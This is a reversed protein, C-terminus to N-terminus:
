TFEAEFLKYIKSYALGFAEGHVDDEEELMTDIHALEHLLCNVSEKDNLNNNIRIYYKENRYCCDGELKSDIKCRKVSFKQPMIKHFFKVVKPFVADIDSFHEWKNYIKYNRDLYLISNSYLVQAIKLAMDGHLKIQGNLVRSKTNIYKKCFKLFKECLKDNKALKLEKREESLVGIADIIGRWYHVMMNGSPKANIFDNALRENYIEIKLDNTSNKKNSIEKTFKQLHLKDRENVCIKIINEEIIAKHALYGLWYNKELTDISSFFSEKM